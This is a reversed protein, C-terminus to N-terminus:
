KLYKLMEKFEPTGASQLLEYIMMETSAIVAGASKMRDLGLRWNLQTRSGVADAAVHVLYGKELAGLVTQMVCIHTEIGCVLLTTRQGPLAKLAARFEGSGFCGFAMKEIPPKDPLLGALQPIVPGLGRVYQATVLAPLELVGALRILLQANRLLREKEWIAPLLKEQIDVVLLACKEAQLSQRAIESYESESSGIRGTAM